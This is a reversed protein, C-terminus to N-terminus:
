WGFFGRTIEKTEVDGYFFIALHNTAHSTSVISLINERRINNLNIFKAVDKSDEFEQSKLIVM